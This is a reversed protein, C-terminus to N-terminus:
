QPLTGGIEGVATKRLSKTKAKWRAWLEQAKVPLTEISPAGIRRWRRGCCCHSPVPGEEQDCSVYWSSSVKWSRASSVARGLVGGTEAKPQMLEGGATNCPGRRLPVACTGGMLLVSMTEAKPRM